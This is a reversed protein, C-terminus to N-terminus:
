FNAQYGLGLFYSSRGNEAASDAQHSWKGGAEIQFGYVDKWRYEMKVAPSTVWEASRGLTTVRHETHVRPSLSWLRSIPYRTDLSATSIRAADTIRHRVDLRNTNGGILLNKGTMKLRYFYESPLEAPSSEYGADALDLMTMEGSLSFRQSFTRSLSLGRTIIEGSNQSAYHGIRDDPLIWSWGEAAAMSHQLHKKQRSQVRANRVDYTAGLTMDGPLKFAGAATVANIVDKNVDYDLFVLLSRKPRLYRLTGGIVTHDLRSSDQEDLLYANLNWANAFTGTEATFGLMQRDTNLTHDDSAAQFGAVGRITLGGALRYDVRIGDAEGLIGSSVGVRRGLQFALSRQMEGDGSCQTEGRDGGLLCPIASSVNIDQDAPANGRGQPAPVGATVTPVLEQAAAPHAPPVHAGPIAVAHTSVLLALALTLREIM